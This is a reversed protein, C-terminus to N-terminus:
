VLFWTVLQVCCSVCVFLRETIHTRSSKHQNAATCLPPAPSDGGLLLGDAANEEAAVPPEISSLFAPRATPERSHM